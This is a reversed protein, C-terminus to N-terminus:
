VFVMQYKTNKTQIFWYGNGEKHIKIVKSTKWFPAKTEGDFFVAYGNKNRIYFTPHEYFIEMKEKSLGSELQMKTTLLNECLSLTAEKLQSLNAQYTSIGTKHLYDAEYFGQPIKGYWPYINIFYIENYEEFCIIDINTSGFKIQACRDGGQPGNIIYQPNSAYGFHKMTDLLFDVATTITTM